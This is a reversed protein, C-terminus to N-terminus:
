QEAFEKDKPLINLANIVWSSSNTIQSCLITVFHKVKEYTFADLRNENISVQVHYPSATAVAYMKILKLKLALM